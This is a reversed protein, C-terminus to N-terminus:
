PFSNSVKWFVLEAFTKARCMRKPQRKFLSLLQENTKKYGPKPCMLRWSSVPFQDRAAGTPSELSFNKVVAHGWYVEYGRVEELNYTKGSVAWSAWSFTEVLVASETKQKEWPVSKPLLLYTNAARASHLWQPSNGIDAPGQGSHLGVFCWTGELGSPRCQSRPLEPGFLAM